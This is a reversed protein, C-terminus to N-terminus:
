SIKSCRQVDKSCREFDKDCEFMAVEFLQKEKPTWNQQRLAARALAKAVNTPNHEVTGIPPLESEKLTLLSGYHTDKPTSDDDNEDVAYAALAAAAAADAFILM